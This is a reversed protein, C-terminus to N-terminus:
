VLNVYRFNHANHGTALGKANRGFDDSVDVPQPRVDGM